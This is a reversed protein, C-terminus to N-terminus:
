EITGIQTLVPKYYTQGAGVTIDQNADLTIQTDSDVTAIKYTTVLDSGGQVIGIYKNGPAAFDATFGTGTVIYEPDPFTTTVTGGALQYVHLSNSQNFDINTIEFKLISILLKYEATTLASARYLIVDNSSALGALISSNYLYGIMDGNDQGATQRMYSNPFGYLGFELYMQKKKTFYQDVHHVKAGLLRTLFNTLGGVTYRSLDQKFFQTYTVTVASATNATFELFYQGTNYNVWGSSLDVGTIKGLKDDVYTNAGCTFTVSDQVIPAHLLTGSYSDFGSNGIPEATHVLEQFELLLRKQATTYKWYLPIGRSYLLYNLLIDPITEHKILDQMLLLEKRTKEYGYDLLNIYSQLKVDEDTLISPISRSPVKM